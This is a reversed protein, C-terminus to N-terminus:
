SGVECGKTGRLGGRGDMPADAGGEEGKEGEAIDGKRFRAYVLYEPGALVGGGGGAAVFYVVEVVVVM